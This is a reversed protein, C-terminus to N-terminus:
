PAQMIQPFAYNLERKTYFVEMYAFMSHFKFKMGIASGLLNMLSAFKESGGIFGFKCHLLKQLAKSFHISEQYLKKRGFKSLGDANPNALLLALLLLFEDNNVDIESM